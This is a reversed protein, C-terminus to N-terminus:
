KGSRLDGPQLSTEGWRACFPFSAEHDCDGCPADILECSRLTMSRLLRWLPQAAPMWRTSYFRHGAMRVVMNMMVVVIVGTMIVGVTVAMPMVVTAVTMGPVDM